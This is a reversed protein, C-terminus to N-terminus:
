PYVPLPCRWDIDAFEHEMDGAPDTNRIHVRSVRIAPQRGLELSVDGRLWVERNLSTSLRDGIEDRWSSADISFGVTLLWLLLGLVLLLLGSFLWVLGRAFRRVWTM